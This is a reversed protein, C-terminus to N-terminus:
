NGLQRDITGVDNTRYSKSKNQKAKSKTILSSLWPVPSNWMSEWSDNTSLGQSSHPLPHSAHWCLMTLLTPLPCRTREAPFARCTWAGQQMGRGWTTRQRKCGWAGMSNFQVLLWWRGPINLTIIEMKQLLFSLSLLNIDSGLAEKLLYYKLQSRFYAFVNMRLAPSLVWSLPTCARLPPSTEFIRSILYPAQSAPTQEGEEPITEALIRIERELEPSVTPSWRCETSPQYWAEVCEGPAQPDLGWVWGPRSPAAAYLSHWSRRWPSYGWQKESGGAWPLHVM